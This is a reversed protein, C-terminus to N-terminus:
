FLLEKMRSFSNQNRLNKGIERPLATDLNRFCELLEQDQALVAIGAIGQVDEVLGTLHKNFAVAQYLLLSAQILLVSSVIRSLAPDIDLVFVGNAETASKFSAALFVPLCLAFLKACSILALLKHNYKYAQLLPFLGYDVNISETALAGGQIMKRFPEM